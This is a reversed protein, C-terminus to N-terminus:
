CFVIVQTVTRGCGASEGGSKVYNMEREDLVTVFSKVKIANLQLKKEQKMKIRWQGM